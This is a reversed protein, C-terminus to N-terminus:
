RQPAPAPKGGNLEKMTREALRMGWQQGAAMSDQMIAPQAKAFRKGAPSSFFAIAADLDEEAVHKVYIPVYMSVIDDKMALERFKEVFGPPLDPSASLQGMMADLVQKALDEGGTLEILKRVKQEKSPAADASPAAVQVAAVSLALAAAALVIKRM